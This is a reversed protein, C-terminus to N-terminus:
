VGTNMNLNLEVKNLCFKIHIDAWAMNEMGLPKTIKRPRGIKKFLVLQM